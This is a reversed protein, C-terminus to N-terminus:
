QAWGQRDTASGCGACYRDGPQAALGCGTACLRTAPAPRLTAADVEWDGGNRPALVAVEPLRVLETITLPDDTLPMPGVYVVAMGPRLGQWESLVVPAEPDTADTQWFQSPTNMMRGDYLIRVGPPHASLGSR